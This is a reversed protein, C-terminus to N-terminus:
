GETEYKKDFLARQKNKQVGLETQLIGLSYHNRPCTDSDKLESICEEIDIIKSGVDKLEEYITRGTKQM